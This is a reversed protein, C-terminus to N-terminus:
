CPGKGGYIEPPRDRPDDHVFPGCGCWPKAYNGVKVGPGDWEDYRGFITLGIRYGTPVVISTPWIEIDLNVAVSPVLPWWEDHGHYPRYDWGGTRRYLQDMAKPSETRQGGGNEGIFEIGGTLLRGASGQSGYARM